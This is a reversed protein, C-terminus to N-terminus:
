IIIRMDSNTNHDSDTPNANIDVYEKEYEITGSSVGTGYPFVKMTKKKKM